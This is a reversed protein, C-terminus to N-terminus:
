VDVTSYYLKFRLRVDTYDLSDEWGVSAKGWIARSNGFARGDM